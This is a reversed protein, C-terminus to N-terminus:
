YLHACLQRVGASVGLQIPSKTTIHLYLFYLHTSVSLTFIYNIMSIDKCRNQKDVLVVIKGGKKAPEKAVHWFSHLDFVASTENVAQKKKMRFDSKFQM